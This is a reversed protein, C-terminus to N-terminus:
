CRNPRAEARRADVTAAVGSIRAAGARGESVEGSWARAASSMADTSRRARRHGRCRGPARLQHRRSGAAWAWTRPRGARRADPRCPARPRDLATSRRQRPADPGTRAARISAARGQAAAYARDGSSASRRGAAHRTREPGGGPCGERSSRLPTSPPALPSPQRACPAIAWTSSSKVIRASRRKYRAGRSRM